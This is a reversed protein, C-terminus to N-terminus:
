TYFASEATGGGCGRICKRVIEPLGIVSSVNTADYCVMVGDIRPIVSPWASIEASSADLSRLARLDIEFIEVLRKRPPQGTDVAATYRNVSDCSSNALPGM